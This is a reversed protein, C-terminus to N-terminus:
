GITSTEVEDSCEPAVSNGIVSTTKDVDTTGVVDSCDIIVVEDIILENEVIETSDVEWVVVFSNLLSSTAEVEKGAVSIEVVDSCDVREAVVPEDGVVRPCVELGVIAVSIVDSKEVVVVPCTESTEVVSKGVLSTTDDM